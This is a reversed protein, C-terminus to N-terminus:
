SRNFIKRLAMERRHTEEAVPRPLCMAGKANYYCGQFTWNDGMPLQVVHVVTPMVKTVIYNAYGDAVPFRIFNGVRITGEVSTDKDLAHVDDWVRQEKTSYDPDNWDLYNARAVIDNITDQTKM